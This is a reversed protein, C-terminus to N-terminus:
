RRTETGGSRVPEDYRYFLALLLALQAQAISEPLHEYDMEGHSLKSRLRVGEPFNTLDGLLGM